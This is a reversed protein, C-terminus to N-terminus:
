IPSGDYFPSKNELNRENQGRNEGYADIEQPILPQWEEDL